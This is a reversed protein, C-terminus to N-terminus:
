RLMLLSDLLGHSQGGLFRCQHDIDDMKKQIKEIEKKLDSYKKILDSKMKEVETIKRLLVKEIETLYPDDPNKNYKELASQLYIKEENSREM